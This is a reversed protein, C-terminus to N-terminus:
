EKPQLSGCLAQAKAEVTLSAYFNSFSENATWHNSRQTQSDDSKSGTSSMRHSGKLGSSACDDVSEITFYMWFCVDSLSRKMWWCRTAAHYRMATSCWVEGNVSESTSDKKAFAHFRVTFDAIQTASSGGTCLHSEAKKTLFADIRMSLSNQSQKLSANFHHSVSDISEKFSFASNLLLKIWIHREDVAKDSKKMNSADSSANTLSNRDIRACESESALQSCISPHKGNSENWGSKLANHDIPVKESHKVSTFAISELRKCCRSVLTMTCNPHSSHGANRQSLLFANVARKHTSELGNRDSQSCRDGDKKSCNTRSEMVNWKTSREQADNWVTPCSTQTRRNRSSKATVFQTKPHWRIALRRLVSSGIVSRWSSSPRVPQWLSASRRSTAVEFRCHCPFPDFWALAWSGFTKSWISYWVNIVYRLEAWASPETDISDTQSYTHASTISTPAEANSVISRLRITDFTIIAITFHTFGGFVCLMISFQSVSTCTADLYWHPLRMKSVNQLGISKADVISRHVKMHWRDAGSQKVTAITIIVVEM